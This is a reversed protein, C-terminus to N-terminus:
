RITVSTAFYDGSLATIGLDLRVPSGPASGRERLDAGSERVHWL